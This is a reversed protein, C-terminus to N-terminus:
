RRSNEKRKFSYSFNGNKDVIMQFRNDDFGTLNLFMVMEDFIQPQDNIIQDWMESWESNTIDDRNIRNIREKGKKNLKVSSKEHSVNAELAKKANFQDEEKDILKDFAIGGGSIIDELNDIFGKEKKIAEVKKQSDQKILIDASLVKRKKIKILYNQLCHDAQEMSWNNM